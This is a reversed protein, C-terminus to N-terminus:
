SSRQLHNNDKDLSALNLQLDKTVQDFFEPLHHKIISFHGQKLLTELEDPVTLVVYFISSPGLTQSRDAFDFSLHRTTQNWFGDSLFNDEIPAFEKSPIKKYLSGALNDITPGHWELNLQDLKIAERCTKRFTISGILIWKGGFHASNTNSRELSQWCPQVSISCEVAYSYAGFLTLMLIMGSHKM